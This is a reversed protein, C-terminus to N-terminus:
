CIRTLLRTKDYTNGAVSQVPGSTRFVPLATSLWISFENSIAMPLELGARSIHLVLEFYHVPVHM